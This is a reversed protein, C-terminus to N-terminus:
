TRLMYGIYFKFPHGIISFIHVTSYVNRKLVMKIEPEPLVISAFATADSHLVEKKLIEDDVRVEFYRPSDPM